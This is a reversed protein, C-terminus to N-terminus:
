SELFTIHCECVNNPLDLEIWLQCNESTIEISDFTAVPSFSGPFISFVFYKLIRGSYRLKLSYKKNVASMNCFAYIGLTSCLSFIRNIVILRLRPLAAHCRSEAIMQSFLVSSRTKDCCHYCLIPWLGIQCAIQNHPFWAMCSIM